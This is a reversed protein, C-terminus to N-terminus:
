CQMSQWRSCIERPELPIDCHLREFATRLSGHYREVNKMTSPNEVAAELIEIGSASAPARFEKSVFNSGQEIRLYDPPVMHVLCWCKMVANWSEKSFVNKLFTAAAFHKEEDVLHLIPNKDVYMIDVAVVSNFCIDENGVTLKLREPQKELESCVKFRKSIDQFAALVESDM